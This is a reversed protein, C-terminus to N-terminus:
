TSSDLVFRDRADIEMARLGTLPLTFNELTVYTDVGAVARKIRVVDNEELCPQALANFHIHETHGLHKYLLSQAVTICQQASTFTNSSYFFPIDGMPGNVNLPHDPDTVKAEGSVPTTGDTPQSYCVVHNYTNDQTVNRRISLMTCTVGEVYEWAVEDVGPTSNPMEKLELMGHPDFRLDLGADTAWKTCIEWVDDTRNIVGAPALIWPRVATFDNAYMNHPWRVDLVNKIQTGLSVSGSIVMTDISRARSIAYSRDALTLSIDLNSGSDIVEFAQIIYYGQHCYEPANFDPVFAGRRLVVENGSLPHLLDNIDSAVLNGTPDSLKVEATRRIKNATNVHVNGDIINLDVLPDKMNEIVTCKTAVAHSEKLVRQLQASTHVTM